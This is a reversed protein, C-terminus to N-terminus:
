KNLTEDLSLLQNAVMTLAALEAPPLNPDAKSEGVALLKAADGPHADYYSLFDQYSREAVARERAQLTRALLRLTMYDVQRDLGGSAMARVALNRAAEILQPDNMVVLAQLPTDTRERRVVCSERTPGDFIEMSAPPASRKWLTYLSRRYLAEGHDQEYHRTNSALMSTAEWVGDPQYPKVPPGGMKTVLLGSASLALDRVMEGDLRFRPGRSLLRNDPDKSLRDPTVAASQRYAASTLMTRFLRKVDWGSERFDVALWDLLEPHSPAEGQSGFDATTKVIGVGFVEQWFRNVAVRATLPHGADVLWKALGLRNRPYSAPLPPLASPVNADIEDRPQDYQGRYLLRATAKSNPREEMVIATTARDEIQKREANLKNLADLSTRYEPDHRSFYYLRLAEEQAASLRRAPQASSKEIEPWVVLLQAEPETIVRNFVRFEALSGPFIVAAGDGGIVLPADNTLAGALQRVVNANQVGYAGREIPVAKGNVYLSLGEEKRSGDYTFTLHTWTNEALPANRLALARILKGGDGYLKLAPVGEDLDILWGRPGTNPPPEADGEVPAPRTLQSAIVPIGARAGTLGPHRTIKQPYVLFSISFPADAAIADLRPLTLAPKGSFDLAQRDTVALAESSDGLPQESSVDPSRLWREFAPSSRERMASLKQILAEKERNLALWRDRDEAKPVFVIPPADPRNDDMIMQTTNNFFAELAYHDKQSIPDFKHDHCTACGTTLGLFVTGATDARDKAYMVAVEEEIVGNENTTVNNRSFGTAILQDLTPHPLLDGALQEVVFQDYSLNRNFAGVVWDRYHWIGGRYNDYHLGNTDGYRAADLWYHARHEGYQPSALFRDVMKEYADPSRDGVFDAVEEPSPPLGRVDLSVRRVLDRRGAEPSPALGSAELKSLVFRDIPNRAWKEDRVAPPNPRVPAIFSWHQKWTAGEAIWKRITEKQPETLTKHAVAPPMRRAPDAASIRRYLLSEDPKGPVVPAGNPRKSFAGDPIDLRLGAMRTSQDPGHCAFCNDSLIPRVDRQFNVAPQQAWLSSGALLGAAIVARKILPM